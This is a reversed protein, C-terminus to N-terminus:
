LLVVSTYSKSLPKCVLPIKLGEKRTGDMVQVTVSFTFVLFFDGNVSLPLFPGKSCTWFDPLFPVGFYSMWIFQITSLFRILSFLRECNDGM